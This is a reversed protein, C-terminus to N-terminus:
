HFIVQGKEGIQLLGYKNSIIHDSGGFGYFVHYHKDWNRLEVNGRKAGGVHLKTNWSVLIPLRLATKVDFLKFNLYVTKPMSVLM